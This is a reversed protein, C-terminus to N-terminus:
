VTLVDAVTGRENSASTNATHRSTEASGVAHAEDTPDPGELRVRLAAGVYQRKYVDSRWGQRRRM